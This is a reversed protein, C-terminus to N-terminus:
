KETQYAENAPEAAYANLRMVNGCRHAPNEKM